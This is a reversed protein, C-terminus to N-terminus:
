HIYRRAIHMIKRSYTSLTKNSFLIPVKNDDSIKISPWRRRYLVTSILSILM